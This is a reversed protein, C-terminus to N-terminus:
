DFLPKFDDIIKGVSEMISKTIEKCDTDFDFSKYGSYCHWTRHRYEREYCNSTDIFFSFQEVEEHTDKTEDLTYSLLVIFCPDYGRNEIRLTKGSNQRYEKTTDIGKITPKFKIKLRYAGKSPKHYGLPKVKEVSVNIGKEDAFKHITDASYRRQVESLKIECKEVAKGYKM